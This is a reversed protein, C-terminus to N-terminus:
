RLSYQPEPVYRRARSYGFSVALYGLSAVLSFLLALLVSLQTDPFSPHQPVIGPDMIELREGRYSASNQADSYRTKAL